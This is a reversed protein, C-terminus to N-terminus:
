SSLNKEMLKFSWYQSLYLKIDEDIISTTPDLAYKAIQYIVGFQTPCIVCRLSPIGVLPIQVFDLIPNLPFKMHNLLVLHLSCVLAVELILVPM